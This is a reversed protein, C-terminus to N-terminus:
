GNKVHELQIRCTTTIQGPTFGGNAEYIAFAPRRSRRLGNDQVWAELREELVRSEGTCGTELVAYSGAPLELHELGGGPPLALEEDLRVGCTCAKGNKAIYFTTASRAASPKYVALFRMVAQAAEKEAHEGERTATLFLMRPSSVVSIRDYDARKTVPLYLALRNVRNGRCLFEEFYPESDLAFMSSKLWDTYLYNWAEGIERETNGAVTKAVTLGKEPCVEVERFVLSAPLREATEPTYELWLEYCFRSGLQKGNRGFIRGRYGPLAEQLAAIAQEEIGTLRPHYFAGRVTAPITESAVTVQRAATSDYRPFYYSVGSRKYELPTMSVASKVNKCLAQQSSYGCTYAVEALPMDSCRILSLANSLRRKRIYEKVSHGTHAYFDRYLQMLSTFGTQAARELSVEDQLHEEIYQIVKKFRHPKEM